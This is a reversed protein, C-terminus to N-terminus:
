FQKNIQGQARWLDPRFPSVQFDPVTIGYAPLQIDHDLGAQMVVPYMDAPFSPLLARYAGELIAFQPPILQRATALPIPVIALTTNFTGTPVDPYQQAIPNPQSATTGTCAAAAADDQQAAISFLLSSVLLTALALFHFLQVHAMNSWLLLRTQRYLRQLGYLFPFHPQHIYYYYPSSDDPMTVTYTSISAPHPGM